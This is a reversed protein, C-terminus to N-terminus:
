EPSLRQANAPRRQLVICYLVETGSGTSRHEVTVFSGIRCDNLEQNLMASVDIRM